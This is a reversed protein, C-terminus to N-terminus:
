RDGDKDSAEVIQIGAKAIYYAVFAVVAILCFARVFDSV